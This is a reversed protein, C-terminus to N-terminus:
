EKSNYKEKSSVSDQKPKDSGSKEKIGNKQMKHDIWNLFNDGSDDDLARSVAYSARQEAEKKSTGLGYGVEMDDIVAVSKFAPSQATSDETYSTEFYIKHKSKQCWEILRSKFDIETETIEELNLYRHLIKEIIIRNAKDYGQDLYIAGIMAELADGNLHKQVMSGTANSVIHESLGMNVCLSNLTQRSVIKARMQTLFGESQDPFEIFLYESIVSELVADGLFELRENNVPTGDPLFVSASRHILALKYLEINNPCIGFLEDAIKYYHKNKGYRKKIPKFIFDLM